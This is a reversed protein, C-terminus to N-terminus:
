IYLKVEASVTEASKLQLLNLWHFNLPHWLHGYIEMPGELLRPMRNEEKRFTRLGYM